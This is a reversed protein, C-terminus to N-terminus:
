TKTKATAFIAGGNPDSLSILALSLWPQRRYFLHGMKNYEDKNVM